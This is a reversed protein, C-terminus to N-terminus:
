ADLIQTIEEITLSWLWRDYNDYGVDEFRFYDELMGIEGLTLENIFKDKKEKEEEQHEEWDEHQKIIPNEM